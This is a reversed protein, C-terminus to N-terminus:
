SANEKENDDAKRQDDSDTSVGSVSFHEDDISDLGPQVTLDDFIGDSMTPGEVKVKVALPVWLGDAVIKM